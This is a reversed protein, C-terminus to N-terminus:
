RTIANGITARMIEQTGAAPLMELTDRLFREVKYEPSLGYGGMVQVAKTCNRIGMDTCYLKARAIEAGVERPSKGQDLLWAPKYYLLRAAEIDTNMDVLMFQIAQLNTIPKGYLIREKCFKLAAEYAGQTAGLAVGAAGTRGAVSIAALAAILGRGEQGILNEKALRCDTLVFENVPVSKLGLRTERRTIEFGPTGREVLFLSYADGTKALFGIVDAVGAHSIYAKRGNVVYADGEAKAVTMMDSPNSGGSPETVALSGVKVGKCLDPLYKKKQQESGFNELAYMILNGTQLFFGLSPYIRSIEEIVIARALHGMGSGGYQSSNLLGIFGMQGMERVLEFEFEGASELQSAVQAVKVEAFERVTKRLAGQESTFSFDM